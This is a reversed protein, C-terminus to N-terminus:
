KAMGCGAPCSRSSSLSDARTEYLSTCGPRGPAHSWRPRQVHSGCRADAVWSGSPAACPVGCWARVWHRCTSPPQSSSEWPRALSTEGTIEWDSLQRRREPRVYALHSWLRRRAQTLVLMGVGLVVLVVGVLVIWSIGKGPGTFAMTARAVRESDKLRLPLSRPNRGSNKHIGTFM